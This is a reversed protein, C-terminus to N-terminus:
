KRKKFVKEGNGGDGEMNALSWYQARFLQGLMSVSANIQQLVDRAREIEDQEERADLWATFARQYEKARRIGSTVGGETIKQFAENAQQRFKKDLSAEVRELEAKAEATARRLRPLDETVSDFIFPLELLVRDLENAKLLTAEKAMEVQDKVRRSVM